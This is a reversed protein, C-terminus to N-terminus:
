AAPKYEADERLLNDNAASLTEQGSHLQWSGKAPDETAPPLGWFGHDGRIQPDWHRLGTVWDNQFATVFHSPHNMTGKYQFPQRLYEPRDTDLAWQRFVDSYGHSIEVPLGLALGNDEDTVWVYYTDTVGSPDTHTFAKLKGYGLYRSLHDNWQGDYRGTSVEEGLGVAWDHYIQSARSEDMYRGGFRQAQVINDPQNMRYPAHVKQRSDGEGIHVRSIDPIGIFVRQKATVDVNPPLKLGFREHGGAQYEEFTMSPKDDHYEYEFKSM